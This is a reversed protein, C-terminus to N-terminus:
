PDGRLDPKGAQCVSSDPQFAQGVNPYLGRLAALSFRFVHDALREVQFGAFEDPGMLLPLIHRAHHYHLCQGIVSAAVLHVEEKPLNPPLLDRLIGVLVAFTPRVFEQVFRECAGPRPDAVERFILVRHWTPVDTRLFRGLFARIFDRLRQEAPIGAPWQPLPSGRTCSEAAHRVTAIYLEEKSRFHYNVAAVNTGAAETIERVGTADFGKQAFLPGAAELIRTRTTEQEPTMAAEIM